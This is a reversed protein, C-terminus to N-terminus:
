YVPLESVPIYVKSTDTSGSNYNINTYVYMTEIDYGGGYATAIQPITYLYPIAGYYQVFEIYDSFYNEKDSPLNKAKLFVGITANKIRNKGEENLPENYLNFSYTQSEKEGKTTLATKTRVKISLPSNDLKIDLYDKPDTKLVTTQTYKSFDEETSKLVDCQYKIEKKTDINDERITYVVKVFVKDPAGDTKIYEGKSSDYIMTKNTVGYSTFMNRDTTADTISKDAAVGTLVTATKEEYKYTENNKLLAAYVTVNRYIANQDKQHLYVQLDWYQTELDKTGTPLTRREKLRVCIDINEDGPTTGYNIYANKNSGIGSTLLVITTLVAVYIALLLIKTTTNTKSIFKM